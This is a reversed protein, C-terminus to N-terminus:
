KPGLNTMVTTRYDSAIGAAVEEPMLAQLREKLAATITDMKRGLEEANMGQSARYAAAAAAELEGPGPREAPAPAHAGHGQIYHVVSAFLQKGGESAIAKLFEVLMPEAIMTILLTGVLNKEDEPTFWDVNHTITRDADRKMQELPM